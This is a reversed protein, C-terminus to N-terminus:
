CETLVKNINALRGKAATVVAGRVTVPPIPALTATDPMHCNGSGADKDTGRVSAATQACAMPGPTPFASARRRGPSSWAARPPVRNQVLTAIGGGARPGCLKRPGKLSPFM